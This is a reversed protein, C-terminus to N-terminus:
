SLHCLLHQIRLYATITGSYEDYTSVNDVKVDGSYLPTSGGGDDESDVGSLGNWAVGDTFEDGIQQYLVGHDVGVEYKRSGVADWTIRSM